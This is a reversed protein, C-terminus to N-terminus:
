EEWHHWEACPTKVIRTPKGLRVPGNVKEGRHKGFFWVRGQGAAKKAERLTRAAVVLLSGGYDVTYPEVWIYLKIKLAM